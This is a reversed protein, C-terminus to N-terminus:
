SSCPSSRSRTTSCARRRLDPPRAPVGGDGGRPAGRPLPPGPLHHGHVARDPHRRALGARHPRQAGRSARLRAGRRVGGGRRHARHLGSAFARLILFLSLPRCTKRRWRARRPPLARRGASRGLPRLRLRAHRRLEVIFLYTPAAFLNGSERPDRPPQRHHHRRHLAGRARGPLRLARSVRLHHRGRRRGREGGGDARLRHAARRGRRARCMHRSQGQHRHLRRRGPSLRLITQRYSSVVIAILVAIAIGIPISYVLAATGALVLVLLIEETAYAVSSLADSSFVALASRRPCGSTRAQATPIPSGRRAPAQAASIKM